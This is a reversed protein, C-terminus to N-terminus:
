PEPAEIQSNMSILPVVLPRILPAVLRGLFRGRVVSASPGQGAIGRKKVEHQHLTGHRGRREFDQAWTHGRGHFDASMSVELVARVAGRVVDMSRSASRDAPVHAASAWPTELGRSSMGSMEIVRATCAIVKPYVPVCPTFKECCQKSLCFIGM